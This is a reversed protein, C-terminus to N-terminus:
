VSIGYPGGGGTALRGRHKVKPAVFGDSTPYLRLDHDHDHGHDHGHGHGHGHGLLKKGRSGLSM